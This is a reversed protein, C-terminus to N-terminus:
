TSTLTDLYFDGNIGLTHSPAGEGRRWQTATTTASITVDISGTEANEAVAIGVNDGAVFNLKSQVGKAVGALYVAIKRAISVKTKNGAADDTLVVDAGEIQLAARQTMNSDDAKKIIHGGGTAGGGVKRWNANASDPESMTNAALAHWYDDAWFVVDSIKYPTAEDWEGGNVDRRFRLALNSAVELAELSDNLHQGLGETEGDVLPALQVFENAM